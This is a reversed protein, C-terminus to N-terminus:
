RVDNNEKKILGKSVAIQYPIRHSPKDLDIEGLRHKKVIWNMKQQTKEASTLKKRPKKLRIRLSM